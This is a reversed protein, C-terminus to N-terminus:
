RRRAQRAAHLRHQRARRVWVLELHLRRRAAVAASGQGAHDLHPPLRRLRATAGRSRGGDSGEYWPQASSGARSRYGVETFVFPKDALNRWAELQKREWRWRNTLAAVDSPGDKERLNFYAVVGIEDVLDFLRAEKYHDWNASYVLTGGFLGRIREIV